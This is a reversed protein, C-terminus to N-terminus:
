EPPRRGHRRVEGGEESLKELAHQEIQRVREATVGLCSALERLTREPGDVGFRACLIRRERENLEGLRRRLTSAEIRVPVRDYADQARPDALLDGFTGIAGEEGSIPEELGRPMRDAGILLEV